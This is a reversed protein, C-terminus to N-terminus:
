FSLTIINNQKYKRTNANMQPSITKEQIDGLARFCGNMAESYEAAVVTGTSGSAM